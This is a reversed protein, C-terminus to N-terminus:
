HLLSFVIFHKCYLQCKSPVTTCKIVTKLFGSFVVPCAHDEVAACDCEWQLGRRECWQAIGSPQIPQGNEQCPSLIIDAVNHMAYKDLCVVAMCDSGEEWLWVAYPRGGSQLGRHSHQNYQPETCVYYFLYFQASFVLLTNAYSNSHHSSCISAGKYVQLAREARVFSDQWSRTPCPSVTGFNLFDSRSSLYCWSLIFKLCLNNNRWRFCITGELIFVYLWFKICRGASVVIRM